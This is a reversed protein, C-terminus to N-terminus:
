HNKTQKCEHGKGQTKQTEVQDQDRRDTQEICGGSPCFDPFDPHPRLGAATLPATVPSVQATRSESRERYFSRFAGPDSRIQQGRPKSRRRIYEV